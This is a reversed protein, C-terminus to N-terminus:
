QLYKVCDEINKEDYDFVIAVSYKARTIGVYFKARTSAELRSNNNQIWKTMAETPYIMVREFTLGKTEGFNFSQYDNNISVRSDWKLQVPNYKSLYTSIDEKKIIFIGRHEIIESHCCDCPETVGLVIIIGLM